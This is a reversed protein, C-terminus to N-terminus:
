MYIMRAQLGITSTSWDRMYVVVVCGSIRQLMRVSSRITLGDFPSKNCVRLRFFLTKLFFNYRKFHSITTFDFFPTMKSFNKPKVVILGKLLYLEKSLVSKTRKQTQLLLGKSSKVIRESAM